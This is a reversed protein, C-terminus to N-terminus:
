ASERGDMKDRARDMPGAVAGAIKNGPPTSPAHPHPRTPAREKAKALKSGIEELKTASIVEWFKPFM